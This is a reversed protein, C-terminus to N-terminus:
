IEIEIGVPCHDSGYYENLIFADKVNSIFRESVIIYDIRWGINKERSKFRYSWWSYKIENPHFYRFTDIFGSNLLNTMGDIEVQTYGATKNYNSKPNKLDIPQHAVNLDGCIIVPKKKDLEVVYNRFDEDWKKRYDLRVLEAGSNPTYVNILFFDHYEVTIVRGEKDHEDIGLDFEYNLPSPKTLVATGSYGKRDASNVILNYDTFTFLAKRVEDEQAKTEQICLIDPNMQAVSEDFGKKIIARIGNVNWSIIKM